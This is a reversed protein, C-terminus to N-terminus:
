ILNFQKRTSVPTPKNDAYGLVELLSPLGDLKKILVKFM